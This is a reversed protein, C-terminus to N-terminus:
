TWIVGISEISRWARVPTRHIYHLRCKITATCWCDHRRRRNQRLRHSHLTDVPWHHDVYENVNLIRAGAYSTPGRPGSPVVREVIDEIIVIQDDPMDKLMTM